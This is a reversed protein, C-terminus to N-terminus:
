QNDLKNTLSESAAPALGAGFAGTFRAPAGMAAAGTLPGVGIITGVSRVWAQPSTGGTMLGLTDKAAEGLVQREATGSSRFGRALEEAADQSVEIFRQTAPLTGQGSRRATGAGYAAFIKSETSMAPVQGTRRVAPISELMMLNKYQERAVRTNVAGAKEGATVLSDLTDTIHAGWAPDKRAVTKALDRLKRTAVQYAAPDNAAEEISRRVGKLPALDAPIDDLLALADDVLVPQTPLAADMVAGIRQAAQRRVAGSLMDAQEGIAEAAARTVVKQQARNMGGMGGITESITRLTQSQTPLIEKYGEVRQLVRLTAGRFARTGVDGVAQGAGALAGQLMISGATSGQDTAELAAGLASQGLIALRGSAMAPNTAALAMSAAIPVAARGMTASFSDPGSQNPDYEGLGRRAMWEGMGVLFDIDALGGGFQGYDQEFTQAAQQQIKRQRLLARKEREIRAREAFPDAM